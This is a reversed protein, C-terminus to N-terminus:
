GRITIAGGEDSTSLGAATSAIANINRTALNQIQESTIVAGSTTNDHEILPNRYETVVVEDLMVGGVNSLAVDLKNAKGALVMVGEVRQTQYGTYGVEVEYTGPDISTFNYNGDLDTPTGTIYVGNKFLVVTSFSLPEKSDEDTVKGGLSTQAVLLLPLGIVLLATLMFYRTMYM